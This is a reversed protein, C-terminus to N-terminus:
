AEEYAEKLLSTPDLLGEPKSEDLKWEVPEYYGHEYLELHLMSMPKGKDVKLVPVVLGLYDGKSIKDSIFILNKRRDEYFPNHMTEGYVIVGSEGEVLIAYTNNWWPSGAFEGTFKIVSIFKGDEVANVRALPNCYIDVGEHIHHKRKFGFSGPEDPSPLRLSGSIPKIWKM